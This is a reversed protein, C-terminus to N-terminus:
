PKATMNLNFVTTGAYGRFVRDTTNYWFMGDYLDAGSPDTAYRPPNNNSQVYSTSPTPPTDNTDIPTNTAFGTIVAQFINDDGEYGHWAWYVSSRYEATASNGIGALFATTFADADMLLEGKSLPSTEYAATTFATESVWNSTGSVGRYFDGDVGLKWSTIAQIEALTWWLGTVMNYLRLRVRAQQGYGIAPFYSTRRESNGASNLLVPEGLGTGIHVFIDQKAM